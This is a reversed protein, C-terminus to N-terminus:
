VPNKFSIKGKLGRLFDLAPMEKKGEPKLSEIKLAQQGGRVPGEGCSLLLGDSAQFLMEAAAAKKEVEVPETKLIKIQKKEGKVWVWCRAGPAPSFARVQNHIKEAPKNWDIWLEEPQIKPAYTALSHDQEAVKVSKNKIQKITEVLLPCGLRLLAAELELLNMDRSVAVSARNLIDGEDMKENMQMISVGSIEDGNLLTRQMPAAGRYEPLLSAHVNVAGFTPIDLLEKKLIQGYAAVALLDPKLKRIAEIFAPDRAKEPQLLPCKLELSSFLRKVDAVHLRHKKRDPQTVVACIDLGSKILYALVGSAFYPTGFFVIRM